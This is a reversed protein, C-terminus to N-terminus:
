GAASTAPAATTPPATTTPQQDAILELNILREAAITARLAIVLDGPKLGYCVFQEGAAGTPPASCAVDTVEVERQSLLWPGILGEAATRAALGDAFQAVTTAPVTTAAVTTVPAAATTAAPAVTTTATGAALGTVPAAPSRLSSVVLLAGVVAVLLGTLAVLLLRAPRPVPHM